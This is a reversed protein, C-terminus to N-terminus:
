DMSTSQILKYVKTPALDTLSAKLVRVGYISLERTLASKLAKGLQGTEHEEKLQPWTKEVVVRSVATLAIEKITQAPDFTHALIAELDRIEYVVLGGVVVTVNDKTVLTQTRLDESQRATPYSQFKTRIPWYWHQGPPLVVVKKGGIWKVAGQTTDVIEFRPVWQGFWDILNGLWAFASEV